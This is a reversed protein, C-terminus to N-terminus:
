KHQQQQLLASASSMYNLGLETFVSGLLLSNTTLLLLTILLGKWWISGFLSVRHIFQSVATMEHKGIPYGVSARSVVVVTYKWTLQLQPHLVLLQLVYVDCEVLEHLLM